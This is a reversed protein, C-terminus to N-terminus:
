RGRPRQRRTRQREIAQEDLIRAVLQEKPMGPAIIGFDRAISQLGRMAVSMLEERTFPPATGGEDPGEDYDEDFYYYDATDTPAPAQSVSLAREIGNEDRLIITDIGPMDLGQLLRLAADEQSEGDQMMNSPIEGAVDLINQAMAQNIPHTNNRGAHSLRTWVPDIKLASPPNEERRKIEAAKQKPTLIRRKPM